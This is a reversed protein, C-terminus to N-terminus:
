AARTRVIFDQSSWEESQNLGNRASRSLLVLSKRIKDSCRRISSRSSTGHGTLKPLLQPAFSSPQSTVFVKLVDDCSLIGQAKLEDPVETQLSIEEKSEPPVVMFGGEGADSLLNDIQWCPGLNIISFHLASISLNEVSITLGDSESVDLIKTESASISKDSKVTVRFRKVWEANEARNQIAEFYKFAGLHELVFIAAEISNDPELPVRPISAISEMSDGLVCYQGGEHTLNFTFPGPSESTELAVLSNAAIAAIWQGQNEITELLRIATKTSSTSTLLKAKGVAGEPYEGANRALLESTLNGVQCVTARLFSSQRKIAEPNEASYLPYIAFEDGSVLGHAVGAAIQLKDSDALQFVPILAVEPISYPRGFFAFNKNGYRMPIQSPCRVHFQARILQYLSRHTIQIGNNWLRNLAHVLFFTLMGNKKGNPHQIEKNEEHPGCAALIAYGQPDTLWRSQVRASRLQDDTPLLDVDLYHRDDMTSDYPITRISSKDRKSRAVGGSFCCDLVLTVFIGKSVMRNLIDSLIKGGLYNGKGTNSFLVLALHGSKRSSSSITHSDPITTGHGSFHIYVADDAVSSDLINELHRLVNERTPWAEPSEAPTEQTPDSPESATLAVIDATPLTQRIYQHVIEVDAVSGQLDLQQPVHYYNVGILLARHAM